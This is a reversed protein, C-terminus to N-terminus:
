LLADIQSAIDNLAQEPTKEGRFVSEFALGLLEDISAWNPSPTRPNATELQDFYAQIYPATKADDSNAAEVLTPIMGASAMMIQPEMTSMWQMFTWAADKHASNALMVLNEGGVVSISGAEGAPLLAATTGNVASDGIISYYWPGDDILLYNGEGMGGWTNPEEGLVSPGIIGQDYWSKLTALADISDQSNIYGTAVTYDDNTVSGGLTWFYPLMGWSGTGSVGLLYEGEDLQDKYTLLQDFTTIPEDIGLEAMLANNFIGVKTNTNLPVGYYSGDFYNTSLPGEFFKTSLTDFGEYGSINELAGLEAFEPVWIIDMRMVDPGTDSIAGAIVQQKLGDYPMRVSDIKINPYAAEFAPIVQEDFVAAEGESYTHWFTLTVIENDTNEDTTNDKDCAVFSFVAILMILFTSLFKRIKMNEEM